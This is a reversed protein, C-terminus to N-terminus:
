SVVFAVIGLSGENDFAVCVAATVGPIGRMVDGLEVLSIRVANRKVVRDVRDVYVYDGSADRRILDGTRYVTHGEVVDDRLVAATLEPAGWYGTM